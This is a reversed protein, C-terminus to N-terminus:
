SGSKLKTCSVALDGKAPDIWDWRMDLWWKKASSDWKYFGEFKANYYSLTCGALTASSPTTVVQSTCTGNPNPPMIWTLNLQSASSGPSIDLKGNYGTCTWSGVLDASTVAAAPLATGLLVWGLLALPLASRRPLRPQRPTIPTM